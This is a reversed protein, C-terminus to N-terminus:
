SNNKQQKHEHHMSCPMWKKGMKHAGSCGIKKAAAKAEAKTNFLVQTRSIAKQNTLLGILATCSSIIYILNILKRM